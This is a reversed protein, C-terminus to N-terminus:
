AAVREQVVVLEVLQHEIQVEHGVVLCCIDSLRIHGLHVQVGRFLCLVLVLHKGVEEFIGHPEARALAVLDHVVIQEHAHDSCEEEVGLVLVFLDKTLNFLVLLVFDMKRLLCQLLEILM